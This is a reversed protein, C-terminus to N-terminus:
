LKAAYDLSIWGNRGAQYAKLLGWKRAGAGSAEEVITFVGKGTYKGVTGYNTGPGKRINLNSIVVKVRYPTADSLTQASPQQTNGLRANIQEAIYPFKSELYPGPCATAAFWKHMTLNGSKDGTYNIRVIGNRQCIDDCLDILKALATDSVHWDGGVEDNAVEITVARNDNSANSSCWSRNAEEVYMGVRGDTGIGYNASAQRNAPAFVSGCQEVTLNGAMHHITIKDIAHNRPKSCNPSLQTYNVLRSNSM